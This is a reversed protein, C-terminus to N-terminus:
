EQFLDCVGHCLDGVDGVDHFLGHWGRRAFDGLVGLRAEYYGPRGVFGMHLLTLHDLVNQIGQGREPELMM